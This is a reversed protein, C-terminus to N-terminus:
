RTAAAVDSVLGFALTFGYCSSNRLLLLGSSRILLLLESSRGEHLARELRRRNERVLKEDNADVSVAFSLVDGSAFRLCVDDGNAADSAGSWLCRRM